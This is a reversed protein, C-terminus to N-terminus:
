KSEKKNNRLITEQLSWTFTVFGAIFSVLLISSVLIIIPSCLLLFFHKLNADLIKMVLVIIVVFFSLLCNILLSTKIKHITSNQGLINCMTLWVYAFIVLLLISLVSSLALYWM